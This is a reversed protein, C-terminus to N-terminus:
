KCLLSHPPKKIAVEKVDVKQAFLLTLTGLESGIGARESVVM